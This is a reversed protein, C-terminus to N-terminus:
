PQRGGLPALFMRELADRCMQHAPGASAHLESLAGHLMKRALAQSLAEMVADVDEGRALARRARALEIERWADTRRQVAQILPVSSRQELWQAFGDVGHDVLKEAEQVAAERLQSNRRVRSALDDVTYLYADPLRAVEPEIDRPVALDLLLMPRHVRAKLAREMAGLGILPLASATCSVVIDFEHLRRGVDALPVAEAGLRDRLAQSREPSRNAVAMTAPKRAAFHTAVLDIMEGAGVFLVRTSEMREFLRQALLVAAAAMSVAHAGIETGSRVAKAVAFSRQFLQHLTVGLAGAGEAERVAQKMQGLIQPEGLVMSDLGAAVRFAHRAANCGEHAYSHDTLAEPAVGGRQALWGVAATRTAEAACAPTAGVYVETRNCTSLIAVESAPVPLHARLSGLSERLRDTPIAFRGRLDLPATGHNLGLALVSMRCVGLGRTGPQALRPPL